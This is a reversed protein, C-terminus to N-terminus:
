GEDTDSESGSLPSSDFVREMVLQRERAAGFLRASTLASSVAVGFLLGDLLSLWWTPTGDRFIFLLLLYWLTLLGGGILMSRRMRRAHERAHMLPEDWSMVLVGAGDHRERNHEYALQKASIEDDCERLLEHEVCLAAYKGTTTATMTVTM